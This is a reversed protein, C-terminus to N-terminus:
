CVSTTLTCLAEEARQPFPTSWGPAGSTTRMTKLVYVSGYSNKNAFMIYLGASTKGM